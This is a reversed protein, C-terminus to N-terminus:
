PRVQNVLGGHFASELRGGGAALSRMAESDPHLRGSAPSDDVRAAGLAALADRNSAQM